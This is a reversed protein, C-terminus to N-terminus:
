RGYIISIPTSYFRFNTLFIEVAGLNMNYWARKRSRRLREDEDCALGAVSEPNALARGECMAKRVERQNVGPMQPIQPFRWVPCDSTVSSCGIDGGPRKRSRHIGVPSGIGPETLCSRM